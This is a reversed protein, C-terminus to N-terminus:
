IDNPRGGARVKERVSRLRAQRTRVEPGTPFPRVLKRLILSLVTTRAEPPALLRDPSKGDVWSCPSLPGSALDLDLLGELRPTTAGLERLFPRLEQCLRRRISSPHLARRGLMRDRPRHTRLQFCCRAGSTDSGGLRRGLLVLSFKVLTSARARCLHSAFPFPDAGAARKWRSSPSAASHRSTKSALCRGEVLTGLM